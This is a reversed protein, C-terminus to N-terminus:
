SDAILAVKVPIGGDERWAPLMRALYEHKFRGRVDEDM